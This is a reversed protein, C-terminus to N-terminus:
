GPLFERVPEAIADHAMSHVPGPPWSNIAAEATSELVEIRAPTVTEEEDRISPNGGSTTTM